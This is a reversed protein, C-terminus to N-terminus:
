MTVFIYSMVNKMILVTSLFYFLVCASLIGRDLDSLASNADQEQEFTSSDQKLANNRMVSPSAAM